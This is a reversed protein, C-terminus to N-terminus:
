DLRLKRIVKPSAGLHIAAEMAAEVRSVPILKARFQSAVLTTMKELFALSVKLRPVTAARVLFIDPWKPQFQGPSIEAVRDVLFTWVPLSDVAVAIMLLSQPSFDRLENRHTHLEQCIEQYIVSDPFISLAHLIQALHHNEFDGLILPVRDLMKRALGPTSGGAVAIRRLSNLGVSLDIPGMKAIQSKGIKSFFFNLKEFNVFQLANKSIHHIILCIEKGRMAPVLEIARDLYLSLMDSDCSEGLAQLNALLDGGSVIGGPTYMSATSFGPQRRPSDIVRFSGGASPVSNSQVTTGVLSQKAANLGRKKM